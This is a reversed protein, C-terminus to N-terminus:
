ESHKQSHTGAWDTPPLGRGGLCPQARANKTAVCQGV